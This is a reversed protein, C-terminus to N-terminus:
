RWRSQLNSAPQMPSWGMALALRGIGSGAAGGRGGSHSSGMTHAGAAVGAWCLGCSQPRPRGPTMAGLFPLIAWCLM